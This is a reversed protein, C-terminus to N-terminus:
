ELVIQFHIHRSSSRIKFQFTAASVDPILIDARLKYKFIFIVELSNIVVRQRDSNTEDVAFRPSYSKVNKNALDFSWQKAIEM